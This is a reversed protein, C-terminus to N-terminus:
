KSAEKVTEPVMSLWCNRCKGCADPAAGVTMALLTVMAIFVGDVIMLDSVVAFLFSWMWYSSIAPTFRGAFAFIQAISIVLPTLDNM